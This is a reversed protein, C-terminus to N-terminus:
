GRKRKDYAGEKIKKVTPNSIGFQKAVRNMSETKLAAKVKELLEPTISVRPKRGRRGDGSGGTAKAPRGPGSRGGITMARIGFHEMLAKLFARPTKCQSEAYIENYWQTTEADTKLQEELKAKRREMRQLEKEIQKLEVVKSKAM